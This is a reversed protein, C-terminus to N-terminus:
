DWGFVVLDGQYGKRACDILVGMTGYYSFKRWRTSQVVLLKITQPQCRKVNQILIYRGSWHLFANIEVFSAASPVMNQDVSRSSYVPLLNYSLWIKFISLDFKNWMLSNASMKRNKQVKSFWVLFLSKINFVTHCITSILHRVTSILRNRLQVAGATEDVLTPALM